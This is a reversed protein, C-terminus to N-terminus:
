NSSIKNKEQIIIALILAIIIPFFFKKELIFNNTIGYIVNLYIFSSLLFSLSIVLFGALSFPFTILFKKVGILEKIKNEENIMASIKKYFLKIIVLIGWLLFLSFALVAISFFLLHKSIYYAIKKPFRVSEVIKEKKLSNLKRLIDGYSYSKNFRINISYPFNIDSLLKSTRINLKKAFIEAAKEPSIVEINISKDKKLKEVFASIQAVNADENIFVKAVFRNELSNEITPFEIAFVIIALVLLFFFTELIFIAFYTGFHNKFLRYTERILAFM